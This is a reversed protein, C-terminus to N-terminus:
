GKWNNHRLIGLSRIISGDHIIQENREKDKESIRSLPLGSSNLRLCNAQFKRLEEDSVDSLAELFINKAEQLRKSIRNVEEYDIEYAM